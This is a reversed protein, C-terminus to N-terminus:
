SREATSPSLRTRARTARISIRPSAKSNPLARISVISSPGFASSRGTTVSRSRISAGRRSGTQQRVVRRAQGQATRSPELSELTQGEFSKEFQVMECIQTLFWRDIKTMEHIDEVSMGKEFAFRIYNLRDPNPTILRQPILREDFVEAASPSAQKSASRIGKGLAQKFTRGIAM